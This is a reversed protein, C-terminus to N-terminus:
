IVRTNNYSLYEYISPGPRSRLGSLWFSIKKKWRRRKLDLWCKTTLFGEGKHAGFQDTSSLIFMNEKKAWVSSAEDGWPRYFLRRESTSCASWTPPNLSLRPSSLFFLLLLLFLFNCSILFTGTEPITESISHCCAECLDRDLIFAPMLPRVFCVSDGVLRYGEGDPFPYYAYHFIRMRNSLYLLLPFLFHMIPPRFCIDFLICM